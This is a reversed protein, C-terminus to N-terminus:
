PWGEEPALSAIWAVIDVHGKSEALDHCYKKNWLCGNEHAYKLVALHGGEAACACTLEDWPCGKEHAYKLVDLHGEEAASNCTGM